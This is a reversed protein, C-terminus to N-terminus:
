KRNIERDFCGRTPSRKRIVGAVGDWGHGEEHITWSRVTFSNKHRLWGATGDPHRAAVRSPKSGGCCGPTEESNAKIRFEARQGSMARDTEQSGM